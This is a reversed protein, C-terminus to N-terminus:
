PKTTGSDSKARSPKKKSRGLVREITRPHIDVGFRKRVREALASWRLSADQQREQGVFEVVEPTLKHRGRPGRKKAVLGPLGERGFATQAQYFSPRSLGFASCAQSVAQGDREVRRLMEYKVQVLDRPDFFPDQQFLPDTVQEPKPNLAGHERLAEQKPERRQGNPM